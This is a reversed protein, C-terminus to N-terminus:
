YVWLGLFTICFVEIFCATFMACVGELYAARCFGDLLGVRIDILPKSAQTARGTMLESGFQIESASGADPVANIKDGAIGASGGKLFFGWHL